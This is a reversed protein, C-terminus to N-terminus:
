RESFFEDVVPAIVDFLHVNSIVRKLHDFVKKYIKNQHATCYFRKSCKSLNFLDLPGLFEAIMFWIEVPLARNGLDLLCKWNRAVHRKRAAILGYFMGMVGRNKGQCFVSRMAFLIQMPYILLKKWNKLLLKLSPKKQSDCTDLKSPYFFSGM